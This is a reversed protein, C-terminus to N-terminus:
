QILPQSSGALEFGDIQARGILQSIYQASARREVREALPLRCHSGERGRLATTGRRDQSRAPDSPGWLADRGSKLARGDLASDLAAEFEPTTEGPSIQGLSGGVKASPCDSLSQAFESFRHPQRVLQKAFLQRRTARRRLPESRRGQRAAFLIHSAAYLPPTM